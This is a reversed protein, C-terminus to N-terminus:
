ITCQNVNFKFTELKVIEVYPRMTDTTSVVHFKNKEANNIEAGPM